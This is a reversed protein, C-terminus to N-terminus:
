RPGPLNILASHNARNSFPNTYVFLCTCLSSELQCPSWLAHLMETAIFSRGPFLLWVPSLMHPKLRSSQGERGGVRGAMWGRQGLCPPHPRQHARTERVAGRSKRRHITQLAPVHYHFSDRPSTDRTVGSGHLPSGNVTPLSLGIRGDWHGEKRWGQGTPTISSWRPGVLQWCLHKDNALLHPKTCAQHWGRCTSVFASDEFHGSRLSNQSSEKSVSSSLGM